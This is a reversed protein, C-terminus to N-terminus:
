TRRQSLLSVRWSFLGSVLVLGRFHLLDTASQDGRSLGDDDLAFEARGYVIRGDRGLDVSREDFRRSADGDDIALREIIQRRDVDRLRV